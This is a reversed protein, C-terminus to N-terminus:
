NKSIRDKIDKLRGTNKFIHAPYADPYSEEMAEFTLDWYKQCLPSVQASLETTDLFTTSYGKCQKMESLVMHLLFRNGHILVLRKRGTATSEKRALFADVVRSVRVGNVLSFSNTNHNFLSKYPHKDINETLAGINRKATAIISLESLSCAQAVIAEDLSIQRGPDEVVAGSKYLYQINSFSLENKIREQESDLAAFDKGGIRNQTNTFKTILTAQTEEADALDIMQIFVKAKAVADPAESFVTGISGTTQAGNVLSVGELAFLGTLRDTSHAAKRTIKQCLLKIGNNYYFFKEPETRLVEKIGQNVDTSGKYFRINKAFLRNGYSQYWEGLASASITGYYAKFPEDITGWNSLIVDDISINDLAQSNSLFDYIEQLKIERFVLIETVDEENVQKLLDDIPAKAYTSISQNGSHCFVMEIQYDMDKLAAIIDSRKALIKTNCGDFESNIICKVGRAFSSAEKPSIGGNGASRWKSQVLFLKKQSYDNYVADIGLDHYGDTVCSGSLNEDIGCQMMVSLAALARSYFSTINNNPEKIDSLDIKGQFLDELKTAIRVMTLNVSM